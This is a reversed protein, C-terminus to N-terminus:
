SRGCGPDVDRLLAQREGATSDANPSEVSTSPLYRTLSCPSSARPSPQVTTRGHTHTGPLHGGNCIRVCNPLWISLLPECQGTVLSSQATGPGSYPRTQTSRTAERCSLWATPGLYVKGAPRAQQSDIVRLAHRARTMTALSNVSDSTFSPTSVLHRLPAFPWPRFHRGYTGIDATRSRRFVVDDNFSRSLDPARPPLPM